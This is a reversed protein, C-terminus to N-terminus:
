FGGIFQKKPEQNVVLGDEIIITCEEGTSVRTGIVQLQEQELWNGFDKLTTTDMQELKDILVFGCEPKLSRVISTAVILQEAGSMCDWKASKYVLEGNDITLDELPLKASNLLNLRDKRIEEIKDTMARYQVQMQEAEDEAKAKELNKSIKANILDIDAIDQELQETSQKESIPTKCAVAYKKKVEEIAKAIIDFEKQLTDLENKLQYKTNQAKEIEANEALVKQQRQILESATVMVEPVDDFYECEKAFKAKQDAIRGLALREIYIEKEKEDFAQLEDSIGLTNLLINAKEKPNSELFKPLNLALEEIFSNLLSQGGKKGTTDTVKLTSNKGTREVKIGNSMTLSINSSGVTDRNSIETPAFKQGGLAFSIADLVTTKGQGNNGGVITLGDKLDMQVSKVKKVNEIELTNIKVTM